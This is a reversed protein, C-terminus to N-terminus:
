RWPVARRKWALKLLQLLLLLEVPLVHGDLHGHDLAELSLDCLERVVLDAALSVKQLADVFGLLEGLGSGGATRLPM